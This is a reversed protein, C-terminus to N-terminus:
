VLRIRAGDDVADNISNILRIVQDRSFMDGGQLSIAVNSSTQAAGEASVGGVASSGGAVAGGGGRPGTSQISSILAGTKALSAATFAAALGPGGSKMGKEWASVAASYGDMVAQAVKAAKGIKFLKDNESQMLSGLDGLAGSVEQMRVQQARREIDALNDVHEQKLQAERGNYEREVELLEERTETLADVPNTNHLGFQDGRPDLLDPSPMPGQFPGPFMPGQMPGTLIRQAASADGRNSSRGSSGVTPQNMHERVAAGFEVIKEIGKSIATVLSSIKGVVKGIFEAVSILAPIWVEQIETALKAIEESNEVIAANLSQRLTDSIERFKQDLAAGDEVADNSMIRGSRQAADGLRNLEAANDRLLPLLATADSALAEMYFTMEQQSVGAKELANVYAILADPGSLRAFQDATLGVKPAINEFFDALPGAGTAMFDGFKDNVDKLIDSLKEQSISVTDAAAALKQFREASVGAIDSLNNIETSAKFAASAMKAGAIGIAAAAAAVAVGVGAVKKGMAAFSKDFKGTSRRANRMGQEFKSVDAGVTVAIDGVVKSM